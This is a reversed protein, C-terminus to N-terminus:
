AGGPKGLRDELVAFFYAMKTKRQVGYTPDEGTSRISGTREQTVAQAEYMCDVFDDFPLGSRQFLNYARTASSKTPAQDGLKRGFDIVLQGIVQRNPDSYDDTPQHLSGFQRALVSGIAEPSQPDASQLQPDTRNAKEPTQQFAWFSVRFLTGASCPLPQRRFAAKLRVIVTPPLGIFRRRLRHVGSSFSCIMRSARWDSAATASTHRLCPM